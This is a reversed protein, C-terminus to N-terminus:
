RVADAADCLDCFQLVDFEVVCDPKTNKHACVVFIHRGNEIRFNMFSRNQHKVKNLVDVLKSSNPGNAVAPLRGNGAGVTRVQQQETITVPNVIMGLTANLASTYQPNAGALGNALDDRSRMLEGVIYDFREMAVRTAAGARDHDGLGFARCFLYSQARLDEVSERVSQHGSGTGAILFETHGM